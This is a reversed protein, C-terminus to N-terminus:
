ERNKEAESMCGLCVGLAEQWKMVEGGWADQLPQPDLHSYAPRRAVTPYADTGCPELKPQWGLQNFIERAFGYWTTLGAHGYHWVGGPLRGPNEALDLLFEAFVAACTPTGRQDDVVRLSAGRRAAAMMTRLFNKGEADYLWAVRFIWWREDDPSSAWEKSAARNWGEAVAQEGALKSAGYVGLPGTADETRYPRESSGDFVYDTSIHVFSAGVKRAEEALIGPAIANIEWATERDSEAADVATYAAANIVLDPRWRAFGSAIADRDCIDLEARGWGAVELDRRGAATALLRRGLQGQAGLVLVRRMACM